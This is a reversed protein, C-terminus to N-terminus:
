PCIRQSICWKYPTLVTLKRCIHPHVPNFVRTIFLESRLWAISPSKGDDEDDEDDEDDDHVPLQGLFESMGMVTLSAPTFARSTELCCHVFQMPVGLSVSAVSLYEYFVSKELVTGGTLM